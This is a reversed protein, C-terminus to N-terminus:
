NILFLYIFYFSSRPLRIRQFAICNEVMLTPDEGGSSVTGQDADRNRAMRFKKGSEGWAKCKKAYARQEKGRRGEGRM